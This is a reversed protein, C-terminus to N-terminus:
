QQTCMSKTLYKIAKKQAAWQTYPIKKSEKISWCMQLLCVYLIHIHHYSTWYGGVSENPKNNKEKKRNRGTCYKWWLKSLRVYVIKYKNMNITLQGHLAFESLVLMYDKQNSENEFM